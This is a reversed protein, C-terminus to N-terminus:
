FLSVKPCTSINHGFERCNGCKRKKTKCATIEVGSRIRTTPAGVTKSVLPDRVIMVDEMDNNHIDDRMKNTADVNEQHTNTDVIKELTEQLAVLAVEYNKKSLSAEEAIKISRMCIDNFRMVKSNSCDGQKTYGKSLVLRDKADKTWRKLIYYSPIEMAGSSLLVSLAHRCLYGKFEFLRCICTVRKGRANWIVQNLKEKIKKNAEQLEYAKVMFKTANQREEVKSPIISSIGLVEDKFKKFVNRTYIGALQMEFLSSYKRQKPMSHFSWFDEQAEDQYRRELAQEYREVFEKLSKKRSVYKDFFSNISESRQSTSMGAFFTDKLFVPVWKKKIKYMDNLWENNELDFTTITKEM